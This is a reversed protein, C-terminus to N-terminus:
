EDGVGETALWALYGIEWGSLEMGGKKVRSARTLGPIQPERM